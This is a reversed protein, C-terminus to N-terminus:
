ASAPIEPAELVDKRLIGLLESKDADPMNFSIISQRLAIFIGEYARYFEDAPILERKARDTQVEIKERQAQILKTREARQDGPDAILAKLVSGLAYRGGPEPEAGGSVLHRRMTGHSVGALDALHSISFREKVPMHTRCQLM